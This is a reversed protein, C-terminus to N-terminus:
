SRLIEAVVAIQFDMEQICYGLGFAEGLKEFKDKEDEDTLKVLTLRHTYMWEVFLAFSRISFDTLTYPPAQGGSQSAMSM